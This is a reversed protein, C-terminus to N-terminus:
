RRGHIRHRRCYLQGNEAYSESHIIPQALLESTSANTLRRSGVRAYRGKPRLQALSRKRDTLTRLFRYPAIARIPLLAEHLSM